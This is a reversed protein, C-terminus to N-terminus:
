SSVGSSTLPVSGSQTLLCEFQNSGPEVVAGPGVIVRCLRAGQRVIGGQLVVSEELRAEREIRAGAEVATSRFRATPEVVAEPHVWNRDKRGPPLTAHVAELYRLPTGLDFWAASTEVAAVPYGRDLAPELLTDIWDSPGEPLLELMVPDLVCAGAYVRSKRVAGSAQLRPRRAECVWGGVLGLGRGFPEVPVTRHVLLTLAARKRHHHALLKRWPFRGWTDGNALLVESAVALPDRLAWLAGGTGLLETEYSYRIPRSGLRVGLAGVIQEARHHLNIALFGLEPIRQFEALRWELLSRGRIPLLPKPLECSLPRLREGRGAALLFAAPVRSRPM